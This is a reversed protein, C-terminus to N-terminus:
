RTQDEELNRITRAARARGGSNIKQSLTQELEPRLEEPLRRARNTLEVLKRVARLGGTQELSLTEDELRLVNLAEELVHGALKEIRELSTQLGHVEVNGSEALEVLLEYAERSLTLLEQNM